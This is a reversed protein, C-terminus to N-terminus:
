RHQGKRSHNFKRVFAESKDICTEWYSDRMLKSEDGLLDVVQAIKTILITYDEYQDFALYKRILFTAMKTAMHDILFM